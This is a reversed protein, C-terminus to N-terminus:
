KKLVRKKMRMYVINGKREIQKHTFIGNELTIFDEKESNSFQM